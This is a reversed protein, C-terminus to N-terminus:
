FQGLIVERSTAVALLDSSGDGPASKGTDHWDLITFSNDGSASRKRTLSTDVCSQKWATSGPTGSAGDWANGDGAGGVLWCDPYNTGDNDAGVYYFENIVLVGNTLEIGGGGVQDNGCSTTGDPSISKLFQSAGCTRSTEAQVGSLESIDHGPNPAQAIAFMVGALILVSALFISVAKKTVVIRLLMTIEMVGSIYINGNSLFFVLSVL